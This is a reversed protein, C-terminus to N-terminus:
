KGAFDAASRSRWHNSSQVESCHKRAEENRRFKLTQIQLIAAWRRVCKSVNSRSVKLLQAVDEQSGYGLGDSIGAVLAMAYLDMRLNASNVLENLARLLMSSEERVREATMLRRHWALVIEAQRVTLKADPISEVLVGAADEVADFDFDEHAVGLELRDQLGPSSGEHLAINGM